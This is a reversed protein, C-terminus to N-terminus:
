PGVNAALPTVVPSALGIFKSVTNSGSNATWVCGSSDIAVGVPTSLSGYGSLPSIATPFGYGFQALSGGAASNAVFITTGDSAIGAPTNLGASVPSIALANGSTAFETLAPGVSAGTTSGTAFVHSLADVALGVPGQLTGDNLTSSLAGANTLSVVSGNGITVFINGTPGVAIADPLAGVSFPSGSLGTGAASVASVTGSNFNAAWANGASDLAISVPADIGSPTFSSSGTVSGASVAFKIISNGATNAVWVNGNRDIAIGQAGFLGTTTQTGLSAGNVGIETVTAGSENTVWANGAADIAVSYPTALTGAGSSSVAVTFDKPASTLTPQFPASPTALTYLATTASAGPNKAIALMAGFTESAGTATFLTSCNGSGPGSTNVCSAIIDALSNLESTPVTVGAGLSGGVGGTTSNALVAANTFANVLGTPNSGTAGVHLIDSAFPALAYAAAVTTVENIFIYTNSTISTCAGLAAVLTLASNPGAGPNGGTATIYVQTAPTTTCNFTGALSFSGTSDTTVTTTLIPTSASKLGSTGVTYLQITSGTVPQQGGHVIGSIKVATAGGATESLSNGATGACGALALIPAV